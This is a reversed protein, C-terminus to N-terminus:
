EDPKFMARAAKNMAKTGGPEAELMASVREFDDNNGTMAIMMPNAWYRKPDAPGGDGIAILMNDDVLSKMARRLSRVRAVNGPGLAKVMDAEYSGEPFARALINAFTMPKNSDRVLRFLYRQV